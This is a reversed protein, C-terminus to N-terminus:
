GNSNSTYRMGYMFFYKPTRWKSKSTKASIDQGLVDATARIDLDIISGTKEVIVPTAPFMPTENIVIALEPSNTVTLTFEDREGALITPTPTAAAEFATSLVTGVIAWYLIKKM